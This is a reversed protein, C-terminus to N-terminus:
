ATQDSQKKIKLAEQRDPRFDAVAAVQIIIDADDMKSLMADAMERCTQVPVTEVGM